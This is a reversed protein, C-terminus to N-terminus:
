NERVVTGFTPDLILKPLNGYANGNGKGNGTGPNDDFDFMGDITGAIADLSGNGVRPLGWNDEIFRIISSQDTVSHDIDNKKAWPSIILFPQRPGYGCRGNQDFAKLPQVVGGIVQQSMSTCSHLGTLSDENVNSQMVIPPMQHDYWGDSDDYLVIIATDKWEPSQQVANIVTVLFQQEDLPDSYGAHGDQYAPAKLISVSPLNHANLAQFFNAMDYQHNAQDGNKGIMSISTPPLHNPNPNTAWYPFFAHHPIYDLVANGAVNVHSATHCDIFGGMFSGFSIGADSLVDGINRGTMTIQARAPNSCMDDKPDPDGIVSGSTAANAINGMGSKGNTISASNTNGALLSLLGPTSPGFVTSYSNDSMAFKQAYNWLATVTNGDYYGMVSNPGLGGTGTDNCSFTFPSGNRLWTGAFRDMLGGDAAFQEDGYVHDQDCTVPRSRDIRFPNVLNPNNTLLGAAELTNAHPTDDKPGKFYVSGDNNPKAHPYTGFYHDFSINEQFIVVLHKIPTTTRSDDSGHGDNAPQGALLAGPAAVSLNSALLLAAFWRFNKCNM